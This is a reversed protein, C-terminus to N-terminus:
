GGCVCVCIAVLEHVCVLVCMHGRACAFVCMYVCLNCLVGKDTRGEREGEEQKGEM